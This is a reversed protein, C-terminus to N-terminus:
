YEAVLSFHFIQTHGWLFIESKTKNGNNPKVKTIFSPFKSKLFWQFVKINKSLIHYLTLNSYTGHSIESKTENGSSPSVKTM